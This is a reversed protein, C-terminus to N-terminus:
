GASTPWRPSPCRRLSSSAGPDHWRVPHPTHSTSQFQSSVAGFEMQRQLPAYDRSSSTRIIVRAMHMPRMMNNINARALLEMPSPERESKSDGDVDDRAHSVGRALRRPACGRSRHRRRRRHRRPAGELAHRLRGEPVGEMDDLGEIIYIEWLPRTLDLPRSILRATQICLQEWTGPHPLALERVHFELDFDGDDVWYPHDLNMPVELLKERFTRVLHLHSGIYGLIRDFTVEGGPATSPDYIQLGGVHMPTTPTEGYLFSADLGSLQHM